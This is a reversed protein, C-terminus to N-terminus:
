PQKIVKITKREKGQQVQVFYVGPRFGEGILVPVGIAVASHRSATRGLADLVTVQALETNNSNIVVRFRSSSPNPSVSVTFTETGPANKDTAALQGSVASSTLVASTVVRSGDHITITAPEDMVNISDTISKAKIIQMKFYEDGENLKDQRVTVRIIKDVTGKKIYIYGNSRIYDRNPQSSTATVNLTRYYLRLTYPLPKRLHIRISAKGDSEYVSTDMITVDEINVEPYSIVDSALRLDTAVANTVEVRYNGAKRPTYTSDAQIITEFINDRYWYFTNNQPTGGVAAILTNGQQALKFTDQPAYILRNTHTSEFTKVLWEIEAFTFKNENLNLQGVPYFSGILKAFSEPLSSLQNNTLVLTQLNALNGISAPVSTLQNFALM